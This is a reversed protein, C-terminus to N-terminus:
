CFAGEEELRKWSAQDSLRPRGSNDTLYVRLNHKGLKQIKILGAEKLIDLIRMAAFASLHMNSDLEFARVLLHPAFDLREEQRILKELYLWFGGIIQTNLKLENINNIYFPGSVESQYKDLSDSLSIGASWLANLKAEEQVRNYEAKGLRMDSIQLQLSSRGNWYHLNLEALVDVKDGATFVEALSGQGFAIGRVQRGDNLRFNPSLHSGDGLRKLNELSLNEFLFLPKENANGFPEFAAVLDITEESIANHSLRVFATHEQEAEFQSSFNSAYARLGEAFAEFNQPLVSVGAAQNHGGVSLTYEEVSKLAELINFNGSSRASGRWQGQTLSFCVAPLQYRDALRTSIIGLVGPHWNEGKVIIINEKETPSQGNLEAYAESLIDQELKRRETNLVELRECAKSAESPDESLLLVMAPDMDDMRGAANIRSAISFAIFESTLDLDPRLKELMIRIGLPGHDRMVRLGNAVIARNDDILPMSDAVTGLAALAFETPDNIDLDLKSRLARVLQLAVGVGALGKFPYDDDSWAPNIFALPMARDEPVQHHDTVIVPVGQSMLAEVEVKSSSGNDVTILLQPPAQLIDEVVQMSLGYGDGLRSPLLYSANLGISRFFRILLATASLGDCDYDGYVLVRGNSRYVNLIIETALEMDKFLFPCSLDDPSPLFYAEEESPLIGNRTLLLDRLEETEVPNTDHDITWKRYTLHKLRLEKDRDNEDM